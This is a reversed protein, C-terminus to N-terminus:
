EEYISESEQEETTLDNWCFDVPFFYKSTKWWSKSEPTQEISVITETKGKANPLGYKADLRNTITKCESYTGKFYKM